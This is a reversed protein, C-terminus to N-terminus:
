PLKPTECPCRWALGGCGVAVRGPPGRDTAWTLSVHRLREQVTGSEAEPVRTCPASCVMQADRIGEHCAEVKAKNKELDAQKKAMATKNRTYTAAKVYRNLEELVVENKQYAEFDSRQKQLRDLKPKIESDMIQNIEQLKKDKKEITKRAQIKKSEFMRTGAAEEMLGLIEPPKM